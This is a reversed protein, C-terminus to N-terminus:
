NLWELDAIVPYHDSATVDQLPRAQVVRFERSVFITDIRMGNLHTAASPPYPREYGEPALADTLGTESALRTLLTRDLARGSDLNFDGLLIKPGPLARVLRITEFTQQQHDEDSLGFHTVLFNLERGAIRQRTRILHAQEGKSPLEMVSYELIASQSLASVGYSGAGPWPGYFSHMGLRRALWLVINGCQSSPRSTDSEQLGLLQPAESQIFHLLQRRSDFGHPDFGQYINYTAVRFSATSAALVKPSGGSTFVLCIAGAIIPLLAIRRDITEGALRVNRLLVPSAALMSVLALLAPAKDRFFASGLLRAQDYTATFIWAFSLLMILTAPIGFRARESGVSQQLLLTLTKLSDFLVLLAALLSVSPIKHLFALDMVALGGAFLMSVPPIRRLLRSADQHLSLATALLLIVAVASLPLSTWATITGPFQYLQLQTFIWFGLGASSSISLLPGTRRSNNIPALEVFLWDRSKVVAFLWTGCASITVPLDIALDPRYTDGAALYLGFLGFGLIIGTSAGAFNHIRLLLVLLLILGISCLLIRTLPGPQLLLVLCVAAFLAAAALPSIRATNRRLWPSLWPLLFVAMFGATPNLGTTALNLFYISSTLQLVLSLGLFWLGAFAVHASLSSDSRNM